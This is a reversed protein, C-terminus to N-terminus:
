SPLPGPARPRISEILDMLELWGYFSAPEGDGNSITGAIVGEDSLVLKAVVMHDEPRSSEYVAMSGVMVCRGTATMVTPLCLRKPKQAKGSSRTLARELKPDM